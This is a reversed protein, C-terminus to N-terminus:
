LTDGLIQELGERYGRKLTLQTGGLLVVKHDGYHWPRIEKIREVNVIVSRHIRLFRRPDLKAELANLTKRLLHSKNGIHLEVYNGAATVWDIEEVNILYFTTRSKVLLRDLFETAPRAKRIPALGEAGNVLLLRGLDQQSHFEDTSSSLKPIEQVVSFSAAVRGARDRIANVSLSVWVSTGDVRRMELESAHFEMGSRFRLFPERAKVKGAPTDAYLDFVPQGLLDSFSYGLLALARQNAARIRGDLGISFCAFPAEMFLDRYLGHDNWEGLNEQVAPKSTAPM